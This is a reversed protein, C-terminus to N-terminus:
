VLSERKSIVGERVYRKALHLTMGYSKIRKAMREEAEKVGGAVVNARDAYKGKTLRFNFQPTKTPISVLADIDEVVALFSYTHNDFHTQSDGKGILDIRGFRFMASGEDVIMAVYTRATPSSRYIEKGEVSVSYIFKGAKTETKILRAKRM